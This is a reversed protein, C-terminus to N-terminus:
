DEEAITVTLGDLDPSCRIQCALRSAATRHRSADLLDSEDEGIPTLTDLYAASVYVHCTACSCCGGCIAQLEGIGENRIVEMVSLGDAATVQHTDGTRTTVIIRPLRLDGTFVADDHILQVVM